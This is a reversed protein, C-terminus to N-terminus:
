SSLLDENTSKLEENSTELGEITAQLYEKTTRLEQDLQLIRARAEPDIVETAAADSPAMATEDPPVGEFLVMLTGKLNEPEMVPTVTPNILQTHGNTKGRVRNRRVPKHTSLAKRNSNAMEVKLGDRAMGLADYFGAFNGPAPELYKGRRGHIYLIEHKENVLVGKPGDVTMIFGKVWDRHSATRRRGEFAAYEEGLPVPSGVREM